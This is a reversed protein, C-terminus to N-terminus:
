LLKTCIDKYPNTKALGIKIVRGTFPKFENQISGLALTVDENKLHKCITVHGIWHHPQYRKSGNWVYQHVEKMLNSLEVSEIPQMFMVSPLFFGISVFELPFSHAVISNFIQIAESETCSFSALTLHAPINMMSDNGVKRYVQKMLHEIKQNTQEDFYLSILYMGINYM